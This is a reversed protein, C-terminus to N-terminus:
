NASAPDQKNNISFAVETSKCRAISRAVASMKYKRAFIAARLRIRTESRNARIRQRGRLVSRPREKKSRRQAPCCEREDGVNIREAAGRLSGAFGEL